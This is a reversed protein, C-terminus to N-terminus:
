GELIAGKERRKSYWFFCGAFFLLMVSYWQGQTFVGLWLGLDTDPARFFEVFFRICGYWFLFAISIVGPKPATMRIRWLILFLLIGEFLAEYLQSPHRLMGGGLPFYMGWPVTTVRGFLEGNFFNGLRGCFIALPTALAVYDARKFFLHPSRWSSLFLVSLVGVVGGFFSMGFFGTFVGNEFPLLFRWPSDLFSERAYLLAYGLRGGILAGFFIWVLVDQLSERFSAEEGGRKLLTSLFHWVLFFGLLWFLGYWRISFGAVVFATPDLQEPLSQWWSIM